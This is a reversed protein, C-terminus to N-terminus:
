QKRWEWPPVSHPNAWLGRQAKRADQELGELVRDGPANMRYWWCMGAGVLEHNLNKGDSLIVDGTTRGYKDLTFARVTVERGFALESTFQKAKKGFAQGKEPCAIGNLRIKEGRGNHMVSITDGDTVGM